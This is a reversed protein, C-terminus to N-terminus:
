SLSYFRFANEVDIRYRMGKKVYIPATGAFLFGTDTSGSLLAGAFTSVSYTPVLYGDSSATYTGVSLISPTECFTIKSFTDYVNKISGNTGFKTNAPVSGANYTTGTTTNNDPPVVWTGDERLYKTTGSGSPLAPCLGDVGRSVVPATVGKLLVETGDVNIKSAYNAM